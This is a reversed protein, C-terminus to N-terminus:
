GSALRRDVDADLVAADGVDRDVDGGIRRLISSSPRSTIAPKTSVWM